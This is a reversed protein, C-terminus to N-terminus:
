IIKGTDTIRNCQSLCLERINFCYKSIYLLSLDTILQCKRLYLNKVYICLKCINLVCKDTINSCHSLDIYQLYFFNYSSSNLNEGSRSFTDSEIMSKFNSNNCQSNKNLIINSIKFCGSLDLSKINQCKAILNTISKTKINSCNPINLKNM